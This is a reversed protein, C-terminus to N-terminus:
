HKGCEIGTGQPEWNSLDTFDDGNLYYIHGTERVSVYCGKQPQNGNYTEASILDSLYNVPNSLWYIKGM